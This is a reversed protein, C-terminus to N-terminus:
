NGSRFNRDQSWKWYGIQLDLLCPSIPIKKVDNGSKDKICVNLELEFDHNPGCNMEGYGELMMMVNHLAKDVATELLNRVEKMQNETGKLAEDKCRTILYYGFAYAADERTSTRWDPFDRPLVDKGM